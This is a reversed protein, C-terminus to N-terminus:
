SPAGVVKVDDGVESGSLHSVMSELNDEKETPPHNRGLTRSVDSM